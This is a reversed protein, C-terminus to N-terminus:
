DPKELMGITRSTFQAATARQTTSPKQEVM